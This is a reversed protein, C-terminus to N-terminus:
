SGWILMQQGCNSVILNIVVLLAVVIVDVVVFIVTLWIVIVRETVNAGLCKIETWAIMYKRGPFHAHNSQGFWLIATFQLVIDM